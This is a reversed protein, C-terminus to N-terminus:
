YASVASKLTLPLIFENNLLLYLEKSFNVGEQMM